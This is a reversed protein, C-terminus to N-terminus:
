PCLSPSLDPVACWLLTHDAPVSPSSLWLCLGTLRSSHLGPPGLVGKRPSVSSWLGGHSRGPHQYNRTSVDLPAGRGRCHVHSVGEPLGRM